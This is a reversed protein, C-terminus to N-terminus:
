GHPLPRARRYDLWKSPSAGRGRLSAAAIALAVLGIAAGPPEPVPHAVPPGNGFQRQWTLFDAGDVDFDADADGSAHVAGTATGFGTKWLPLDAGDVFLDENFDGDDVFVGDTLSYVKWADGAGSPPLIQYQWGSALNRVDIVPNVGSLNPGTILSFQQGALPAFGDTFKLQVTGQIDAAGLVNLVDHQDGPILGGIEMLLSGGPAVTLDGDITLSGPSAGPALQGEVVVHANLLGEKGSLQGGPRILVTNPPVAPLSNLDGGIIVGGGNLGLLGNITVRHAALRGGAGISAIGNVRIADDVRALANTGQVKLQSHPGVILGGVSATTHLLGGAEVQVSSSSGDHGVDIFAAEVTSRQSLQGGLTLTAAHNLALREAATVRGGNGVLISGGPGSDIFRATLTSPEHSVDDEGTVIIQQLGGALMTVKSTEAVLKGGDVLHLAGAVRVADPGHATLEGGAEITAAGQNGIKLQDVTLKGHDHVQLRGVGDGGVNVAKLTVQSAASSIDVTGHGTSATGLELVTNSGEVDATAKFNLLGTGARGVIVSGPNLTLKGGRGLDDGVEITGSSGADVGLITGHLSSADPAAPLDLTALDAVVIKGVAVNGKGVFLDGQVKFESNSGSVNVIREAPAAEDGVVVKAGTAATVKGGGTVNMVAQGQKGITLTGANQNLKGGSVNITGDAPLGAEGVIVDADADLVAGDGINVSAGGAKGVILKGSKIHWRAAAGTLHAEGHSNEEVGLVAEGSTEVLTENLPAVDDITLVGTGSGGGINFAGTVKFLGQNSVKVEGRSGPDNGLTMADAIFEASNTLELTGHGTQGVTLSGAYEFASEEGDIVLTGNGAQHAGVVVGPGTGNLRAGNKIEVRGTGVDGITLGGFVTWTSQSGSQNGDIIVTGSGGVHGGLTVSSTSTFSAGEKIDLIGKGLNGISFAATTPFIVGDQLELKADPGILSLTGEALDTDGLVGREKIKLTGDRITVHGDGLDGVILEDTEWRAGTKIEVNGQQGDLVAVKAVRTLLKGNSELNVDGQTFVGVYMEDFRVEGNDKVVLKGSGFDWMEVDGLGINAYATQGHIKSSGEVTVVSHGGRGVNFYQHPTIESNNKLLVDAKAGIGTATELGLTELTSQDLIVEVRGGAVEMTSASASSNFLWIRGYPTGEPAFGSFNIADGLLSTGSDLSMPSIRALLNIQAASIATNSIYMPALGDPHALSAASFSGVDFSGGSAQGHFAFHLSSNPLGLSGGSINIFVDADLFDEGVNIGDGDLPPLGIVEPPSGPEIRYRGFWSNEWDDFSGSGGDGDPGWWYYLEPGAQGHL